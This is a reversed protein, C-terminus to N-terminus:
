DSIPVELSNKFAEITVNTTIKRVAPNKEQLQKMLNDFSPISKALVILILDTSGTTFYAQQVQPQQSCWYKLNKREVTGERDLEIMAILIITFDLAEADVISVVNKIVGIKRLVKLRRQVASASLGIKEGLVESGLSADRQVENLLKRDFSDLHSKM